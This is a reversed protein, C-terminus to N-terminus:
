AVLEEIVGTSDGFSEAKAGVGNLLTLWVNCLPTKPDAMVINQGLKIGAGRGTLLTPVNDTYHQSRVNTGFVVSTHDFLSSGDPEKTAKLKDVLHALLQAMGRDRAQSAEMRAGPAYHSINHGNFGIGLGDILPQAPQRYTAVRTANTQLAAAMIDYMLRVEKDGSMGKAPEPMPDTPKVKPVTLWQEEKALRTEIDRISEFYEDLKDIDDRSLGRSLDRADELVTDLVSQENKLQEQRVALPTKDDAFLKHYAVVPNELGAVPKGQRNWALSLGPGHSDGAGSLALSTFRTQAGFQEAAVQDVSITNSFSKGPVGYKNAGTLWFTSCSHPDIFHKHYCNQVITIDQKHRELPKLGDPLTWESGVQQKDPYWTEGTVGWGFGIFIMRTPPAAAASAASAFRRFGLSALGPLAILSGAGKLFTRRHISM